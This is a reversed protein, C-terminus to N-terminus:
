GFAPHPTWTGGPGNAAAREIVAKLAAVDSAWSEPARALLERATPAGKPFPLVHIILYRVFPNRLFTGRPPIDLEGLAMRVSAILHSVMRPATFKGWRAPTTADLRDVRALLVARATSDFITGPM